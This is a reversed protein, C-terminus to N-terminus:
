PDLRIIGRRLATTVAATRDTVGLKGFIHLMHAKVTSESILLERAIAKNNLGRAVLQLIEIERESLREEGTGSMRQVLRTAVSPSLPSRGRAAQRIAEFLNEESADKLLFGIAGKGV